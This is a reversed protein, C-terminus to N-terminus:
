SILNLLIGNYRLLSNNNRTYQMASIFEGIQSFSRLGRLTSAHLYVMADCLAPIHTSSYHSFSPPRPVLGWFIKLTVGQLVDSLVRKALRQAWFSFQDKLGSIFSSCAVNLRGKATINRYDLALYM